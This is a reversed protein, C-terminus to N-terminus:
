SLKKISNFIIYALKKVAGTKGRQKSLYEKQKKLHKENNILFLAENAIQKPSIKGIREPIIFKKAKINPWAFFKKKKFYWNKVIFTFLKNILSIKGIIGFIGDWANMSHLHQTPLVVIMPLTLAALEATNAGVTTIALECKKLVEYCPHKTILYLKTNNSTELIYNFISNKIPEIKRIKTSYFKAIPNKYSQYFLYERPNTTPAVPIIFHINKNKKSIHDAM